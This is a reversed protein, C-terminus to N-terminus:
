GAELQSARDSSQLPSAFHFTSARYQASYCHHGQCTNERSRLGRYLRFAFDDDIGRLVFFGERSQGLHKGLLVPMSASTM